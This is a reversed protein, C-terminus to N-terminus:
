CMTGHIATIMRTVQTMESVDHVRVIHVGEAVCWAVAAATGFIRESPNTINLIKGIFSKRSPGALVPVDLTLLESIHRFLQLNHEVTKGFGFGPDIVIQSREIGTAVAYDIRENLFEKVDRVVDEYAPNTQMTRPKGQIHMLIVPVRARTALEAMQDDFRLASIDNIITAGVELAAQAVRGSTTDISIPTETQRRLDRIVPVVREIQREDSVSEAGPRTSEGGVDIIGAGEAIMKLGQAVAKDPKIFAGGDSFSDPTVNLIGMIVPGASLDLIKGCCNLQYKNM